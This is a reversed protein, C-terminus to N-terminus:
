RKEVSAEDIYEGAKCAPALDFDDRADRRQSGAGSGSCDRENRAVVCESHDWGREVLVLDRGPDGRALRDRDDFEAAVDCLQTPHQVLETKEVGRNVDLVRGQRGLADCQERGNSGILSGIERHHEYRTRPSSISSTSHTTTPAPTM